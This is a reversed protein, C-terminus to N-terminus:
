EKGAAKAEAVPMKGAKILDGYKTKKDGSVTGEIKKIAATAEEQTANTKGLAKEMDKGYANRMKKDAGTHCINCGAKGLPTDAKIDYAKIFSMSYQPRASAVGPLLAACATFALLGTAFRRM